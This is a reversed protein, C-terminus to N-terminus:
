VAGGYRNAMAAETAIEVMYGSELHTLNGAQITTTTTTTTTKSQFLLHLMKNETELIFLMILVGFMLWSFFFVYVNV